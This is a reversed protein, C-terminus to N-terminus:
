ELRNSDGDPLWSPSQDGWSDDLPDVQYPYSSHLLSSSSAEIRIKLEQVIAEVLGVSFRDILEGVRSDIADVSEFHSLASVRIDELKRQWADLFKDARRESNGAYGSSGQTSRSQARIRRSSEIAQCFLIRLDSKLHGSDDALRLARSIQDLMDPEIAIPSALGSAVRFLHDAVRNDFYLSAFRNLEKVDINCCQSVFKLLEYATDGPEHNAAASETTTYIEVRNCTSLLVFNSFKMALDGSNLSLRERLEVPTTSRSFELCVFPM